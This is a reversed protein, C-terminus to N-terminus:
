FGLAWHPNNSHALKKNNAWPLRAARILSLIDTGGERKTEERIYSKDRPGATLAPQKVTHTMKNAFPSPASFTSGNCESRPPSQSSTLNKVKLTRLPIAHGYFQWLFMM